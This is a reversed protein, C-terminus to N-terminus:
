WRENRQFDFVTIRGNSHMHHTGSAGNFKPEIRAAPTEIYTSATIEVIRMLQAEVGYKNFGHKQSVRYHDKGDFM